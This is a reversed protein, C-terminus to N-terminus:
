VRDSESLAPIAECRGQRLTWARYGCFGIVAVAVVIWAAALHWSISFQLVEEYRLHDFWTNVWGSAKHRGGARSRGAFDFWSVTWDNPVSQVWDPLVSDKGRHILM